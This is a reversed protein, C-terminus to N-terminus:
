RLSQNAVGPTPKLSQIKQSKSGLRGVSVDPRQQKFELRDVLRSGKVLTVLEGSKSLKFNAHLGDDQEDEDAWILLYEGAELKTGDPIQWKNPESPDDSLYMGSLDISKEGLNALEIFDEAEGQPDAGSQTNSALIESIILDKFEAGADSLVVRGPSVADITLNAASAIEEHELLFRQRSDFFSYLNGTIHGDELPIDTSRDFNEISTLKRTDAAVEDKILERCDEILLAVNAIDFGDKAISKLYSAYKKRYESVALLKSRLPMRDDDMGIFPDLDISGHGPPGGGRGGFAPVPFAQAPGFGRPPLDKRENPGNGRDFPGAPGAPGFGGGGGPRRMGRGGGAVMFAENMDHPIVHFRGQPDLYLSYDSARTWYGDSNVTAVDMALFRLAGDVDLIPELAEPLQDTPTESLVKCLNILAHWSEDSDKSKIEFRQRYDEVNEGLYRLGGDAMPSGSVKWRAGQNSGFNEKIFEKNFQQVNCYIGWSEGNIVVHVFNAKPVALYPAAIQSYLVSSMFSPDGNCNLLNLTKYGYLRQDEDVLDVSLNLSRKRGEPINSFSSQGRFKVGVLPYGRGDITVTAPVEVDTHKFKALEAEWDESEFEIFLTRLVSIDYLSADPFSEVDSVTINRGPTGLGDDGGFRMGRPGRGGRSQIAEAAKAREAKDLFGNNDDDFKDALKQEQNNPGGPGGPGMGPGPFSPLIENIVLKGDGNADLKQLLKAANDIEEASLEGDGDADLIRSVPDLPIRFGDPQPSNPQAMVDFAILCFTLLLRLTLSRRTM